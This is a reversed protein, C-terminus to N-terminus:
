AAAIQDLTGYKAQLYENWKTKMAASEWRVSPENLLNWALITPADRFRTTFAEWWAEHARVVEEDAFPDKGQLWQPVGEWHDPGSPIVRIGLERCISLM